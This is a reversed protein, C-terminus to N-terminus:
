CRGDWECFNELLQLGNIQSKEPHFQFGVVNDNAVISTFEFGYATTAIVNDAHECTMAFAHVFYFDRGDKVGKTLPHEQRFVATNWGVHPVRLGGTKPLPEVRAPVLNLGSEGGGEAGYGALIQMGLCVGLIPRGSAAFAHILSELNRERLRAMATGFHGVGPIILHSLDDHDEAGDCLVWDHGVEYVTNCVSRLNGMGYDLVGIM